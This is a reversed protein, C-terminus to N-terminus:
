ANLNIDSSKFKNSSSTTDQRASKTTMGPVAPM